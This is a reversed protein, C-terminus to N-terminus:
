ECSFGNGRELKLKSENHYILSTMLRVSVPFNLSQLLMEQQQRRSDTDPAGTDGNNSLAEGSDATVDMVITSSPPTFRSVCDAPLMMPRVDLGEQTYPFNPFSYYGAVSAAYSFNVDGKHQSDISADGVAIKSM